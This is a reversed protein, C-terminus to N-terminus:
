LCIRRTVLGANGSQNNQFLMMKRLTLKDVHVCSFLPKGAVLRVMQVDKNKWARCSWKKLLVCLGFVKTTALDATRKREGTGGGGGQEEEDDSGLASRM